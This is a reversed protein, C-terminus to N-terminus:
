SGTRALVVPARARRFVQEAVSGLVVRGLASRLVTTVVILDAGFEDAERLIEDAPEGFRVRHEVRVGGLRPELARLRDLAEAELRAGEQDAYVVVRGESEVHRPVPAVHLLRVTAGGGRALDGVLEILGEPPAKEDIPVLLRKAM